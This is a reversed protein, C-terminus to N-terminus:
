WWCCCCLLSPNSGGQLATPGAMCATSSYRTLLRQCVAHVLLGARLALVSSLNAQLQADPARHGVDNCPTTSPQPQLYKFAVQHVTRSEHNLGAAHRSKVEFAGKVLRISTPPPGEFLRSIVYVTWTLVHSRGADQPTGTGHQGAPECAAGAGDGECCPRCLGCRAVGSRCCCPAPAAGDGPWSDPTACSSSNRDPEGSMPTPLVTATVAPGEPGCALLTTLGPGPSRLLCTRTNDPIYCYCHCHSCRQTGVSTTNVCEVDAM